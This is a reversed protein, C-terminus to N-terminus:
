SIRSHCLNCYRYYVNTDLQIKEHENRISENIHNALDSLGLKVDFIGFDNPGLIQYLHATKPLKVGFKQKITVYKPLLQFKSAVDELVDEITTLEPYVQAVTDFENLEFRVTINRDLSRHQQQQPTAAPSANKDSPNLQKTLTPLSYMNARPNHM